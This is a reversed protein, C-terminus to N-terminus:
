WDYLSIMHNSVGNDMYWTTEDIVGKSFHSVLYFDNAKLIRSLEDLEFSTTVCTIEKGKKKENDGKNKKLFMTLYHAYEGHQFM